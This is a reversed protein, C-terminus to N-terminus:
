RDNSNLLALAPKTRPNKYFVLKADARVAGHELDL